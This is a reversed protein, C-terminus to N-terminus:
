MDGAIGGDESAPLRHSFGNKTSCCNRCTAPSVRWYVLPAMFGESKRRFGRVIKTSYVGAPCYPDFVGAFCQTLWLGVRWRPILTRILCGESVKRTTIEGSQREPFENRGQVSRPVLESASQTDVARVAYGDFNSRDFSSVDVRAIVNDALVRGLADRVAIKEIGLPALTQASRFRREAEDLDIV